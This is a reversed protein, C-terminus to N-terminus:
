CGAHDVSKVRMACGFMRWVKPTSVSGTRDATQPTLVADDIGGASFNHAVFDVAVTEYAVVVPRSAILRIAGGATINAGSRLLQGKAEDWAEASAAAGQRITMIPTAEYSRFVVEPKLGRRQASVVDEDAMLRDKLAKGLTMEFIRVGKLEITVEVDAASSAGGGLGRLRGSLFGSAATNQVSGLDGILKGSAGADEPRDVLSLAAVQGPMPRVLVCGPYRGDLPPLNTQISLPDTQLATALEDTLTRLRPRTGFIYVTVMIVAAALVVGSIIWTSKKKRANSVTMGEHLGVVTYRCSM